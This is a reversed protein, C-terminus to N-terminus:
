VTYARRAEEALQRIEQEMEETNDFLSRSALTAVWGALEEVIVHLPRAPKPKNCQLCSCEDDKKRKSM